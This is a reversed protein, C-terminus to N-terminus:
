DQLKTRDAHACSHMLIHKGPSDRFRDIHQKRFLVVENWYFGLALLAENGAARNDRKESRKRRGNELCFAALSGFFAAFLTSTAGIVVPLTLPSLVTQVADLM